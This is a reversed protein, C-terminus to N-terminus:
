ILLRTTLQLGGFAIKGFTGAHLWGNGSTYAHARRAQLLYNLGTKEIPPEINEYQRNGSLNQLPSYIRNVVILCSVFEVM